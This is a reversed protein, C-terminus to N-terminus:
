RTESVWQCELRNTGPNRAWVCALRPAPLASMVSAILRDVAAFHNKSDEPFMSKM